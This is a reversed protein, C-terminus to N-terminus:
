ERCAMLYRAAPVPREPQEAAPAEFVNKQWINSLQQGVECLLPSTVGLSTALMELCRVIEVAEGQNLSRAYGTVQQDLYALLPDKVELDPSESLPNNLM